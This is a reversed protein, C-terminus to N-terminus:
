KVGVKISRKCEESLEEPDKASVCDNGIVWCDGNLPKQTETLKSRIEKTKSM